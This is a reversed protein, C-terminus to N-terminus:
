KRRKEKRRKEKIGIDQIGCGRGDRIRLRWNWHKDFHGRNRNERNGETKDKM